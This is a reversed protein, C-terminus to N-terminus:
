PARARHRCLARLLRLLLSRGPLVPLGDAPCLPVPSQTDRASHFAFHLTGLRHQTDETFSAPAAQRAVFQVPLHEVEVQIQQGVPLDVGVMAHHCGPGARLGRVAHGLVLDVLDDLRHAGLAVAETRGPLPQWVANVSTATFQVPAVQNMSPSMESQKPDKSWSIITLIRDSFIWSLLNSRSIRLMSFAPYRSSQFYWSVSLPTGCPPTTEGM